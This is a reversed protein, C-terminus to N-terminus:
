YIKRATLPLARPCSGNSTSLMQDNSKDDHKVTIKGSITGLPKITPERDLEVMAEAYVCETTISFPSREALGQAFECGKWLNIDFNDTSTPEETM